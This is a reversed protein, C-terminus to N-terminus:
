IQSEGDGNEGNGLAHSKVNLNKPGNEGTAVM